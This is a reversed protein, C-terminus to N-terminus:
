VGAVPCCFRSNNSLRIQPKLWSQINEFKLLSSVKKKCWPKRELDRSVYSYAKIKNPCIHPTCPPYPSGLYAPLPTPSCHILQDINQLDRFRLFTFTSFRRFSLFYKGSFTPWFFDYKYPHWEELMGRGRGQLPQGCDILPYGMDPYASSWVWTNFPLLHAMVLVSASSQFM